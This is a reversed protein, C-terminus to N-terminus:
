LGFGWGEVTLTLVADVHIRHRRHHWAQFRAWATEYEKCEETVEVPKSVTKQWRRFALRARKSASKKDAHKVKVSKHLRIGASIVKALGGTCHRLFPHVATRAKKKAPPVVCVPDGEQPMVAPAAQEFTGLDGLAAPDPGDLDIRPLLVSPGGQLGSPLAMSILNGFIGQSVPNEGGGVDAIEDLAIRADQLSSVRRGSSQLSKKFTRSRQVVTRPTDYVPVRPVDGPRDKNPNYKQVTSDKALKDFEKAATEGDMGRNKKLLHAIYEGEDVWIIDNRLGVMMEQSLETVLESTSSLRRRLAEKYEATGAVYSEDIRSNRVKAAYIEHDYKKMMALAEKTKDDKAAALTMSKDARRCPYCEWLAKRNTRFMKDKPNMVPPGCLWKCRGWEVKAAMDSVTGGGENGTGASGTGGMEEDDSDDLDVPVSQRERRPVLMCGSGWGVAAQVVTGSQGAGVVGGGGGGVGVLEVSAPVIAGATVAASKEISVAMNGCWLAVTM